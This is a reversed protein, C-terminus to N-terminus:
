RYIQRIRIYNKINIKIIKRVNKFIFTKNFKIEDNGNIFFDSIISHKDHM